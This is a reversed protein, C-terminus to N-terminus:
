DEKSQETQKRKHKKTTYTVECERVIEFEQDCYVCSENPLKGDVIDEAVEWSDTDEHGCYPCTIFRTNETEM